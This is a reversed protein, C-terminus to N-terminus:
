SRDNSGAIEGILSFIWIIGYFVYGLLLLVRGTAVLIPGITEWYRATLLGVVLVGFPLPAAIEWRVDLAFHWGAAAAAAPLLVALAAFVRRDLGQLQRARWSEVNAFYGPLAPLLTAFVTPAALLLLLREDASAKLCAIVACVLWAGGVVMAFIAVVPVGDASDSPGEEAPAPPASPPPAEPAPAGM